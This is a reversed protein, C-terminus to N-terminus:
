LFKTYRQCSFFLVDLSIQQRVMKGRTVKLDSFDTLARNVLDKVLQREQLIFLGFM